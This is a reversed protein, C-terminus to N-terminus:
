QDINEFGQAVDVIDRYDKELLARYGFILTHLKQYLGVYAACAQLSMPANALDGAFTLVPLKLAAASLEAAEAKLQVPDVVITHKM